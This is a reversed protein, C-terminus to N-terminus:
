LWWCFPLENADAARQILPFFHQIRPSYQIVYWAVENTPKGVMSSGPYGVRDIISEVRVLNVSDTRNQYQWLTNDLNNKVALANTLSETLKPENSLRAMYTRYKQDLLYMSDLKRKLVQNM